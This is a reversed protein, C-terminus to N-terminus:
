AGHSSWKLIVSILILIVVVQQRSKADIEKGVFLHTVSQTEVTVDFSNVFDPSWCSKHM